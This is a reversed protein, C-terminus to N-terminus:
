GAGQAAVVGRDVGKLALACEDALEPAVDRVQKLLDVLQRNVRVFDGPAMSGTTIDDFDEGSVWRLAQGGFGPDPRRTPSLRARREQDILDAWIAEIQQWRENLLDTPWDAPSSQDSRPEYVFVSLLAALESAELGYFVGRDLCETLLLDSENYVGRLREGRPTLDWDNLYGLDELLGLIAHFEDVLGHGSARRMSRMQELKQELRKAKRASALHRAADPCAAVPHPPREKKGGRDRPRDPLKRLRRLTEQVFRRDRPRVPRPLDLSGAVSSGAVIEKRGLSSVRGSTSLALYRVGGGKSSLRKLVVFRGERAGGAVDVV